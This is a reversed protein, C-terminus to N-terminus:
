SPVFRQTGLGSSGLVGYWLPIVSSFSIAIRDDLIELNSSGSFSVNIREIPLEAIALRRFIRTPDYPAPGLTPTQIVFGTIDMGSLATAGAFMVLTAALMAQRPRSGKLGRDRYSKLDAVCWLCFRQKCSFTHRSWLLLQTYAQPILM